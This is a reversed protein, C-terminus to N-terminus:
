TDQWPLKSWAWDTFSERAVLGSNFRCPATIRNHLAVLRHLRRPSEVVDAAGIEWLLDAIPQISPERGPTATSNREPDLLAVFQASSRGRRLFFQLVETLNEQGVEILALAFPHEDLRVSLEGLTRVEYLRPPAQNEPLSAFVTRLGATWRGSKECVVWKQLVSKVFNGDSSHIESLLNPSSM